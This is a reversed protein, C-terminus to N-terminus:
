ETTAGITEPAELITRAVDILKTRSSRATQQLYRHAKEEDMQLQKMLMGKAREIVKRQELREELTGVQKELNRLYEFRKQSLFLAPKLDNQTVPEVLYSMVHDKMADELSDLEDGAALIISPRPKVEGIALLAEIGEMDKLRESVVMVDAPEEIAKAILTQGHDTTFGVNHNLGRLIAALRELQTDDQHAVYVLNPSRPINSM